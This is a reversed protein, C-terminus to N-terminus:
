ILIQGIDSPTLGAVDAVTAVRLGNLLIDTGRRDRTPRTEIMAEGGCEEMAIVLMDEIPDFDTVIVPNRPLATNGPLDDLPDNARGTAAWDFGPGPVVTEEFLADRM